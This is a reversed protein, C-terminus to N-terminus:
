KENVTASCVRTDSFCSVVVSSFVRKRYVINLSKCSFRLVTFGATVFHTKLDQLQATRMDGGAGHTLILGIGRNPTELEPKSICAEIAKDGHFIQVSERRFFYVPINNIM